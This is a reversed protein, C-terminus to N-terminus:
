KVSCGPLTLFVLNPENVVLGFKPWLPRRRGSVMPSFSDVTYATRLHETSQPVQALRKGAGTGRQCYTGRAPLIHSPVPVRLSATVTCPKLRKAFLPTGAEFPSPTEEARSRFPLGAVYYRCPRVALRPLRPAAVLSSAQLIGLYTSLWSFFGSRSLNIRSDTGDQCPIRGRFLLRPRSLM